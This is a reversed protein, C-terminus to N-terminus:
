RLIWRRGNLFSEESSLHLRPTRLSLIRSSRVTSDRSLWHVQHWCINSEFGLFMRPANLEIKIDKSQNSSPDGTSQSGSKTNSIASQMRFFVDTNVSLNENPQQLSNAIMSRRYPVMKRHWRRRRTMDMSREDAHFRMNFMPAYEWGGNRLDKVM